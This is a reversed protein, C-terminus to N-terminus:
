GKCSCGLKIVQPNFPGYSRALPTRAASSHQPLDWSLGAMGPIAPSPQCTGSSAWCWHGWLHTGPKTGAGVGRPSRCGQEWRWSFAWVWGSGWSGCLPHGWGASGLQSTSSVARSAPLGPVRCPLLPDPKSHGHWCGLPTCPGPPQWGCGALTEAGVACQQIGQPDRSFM